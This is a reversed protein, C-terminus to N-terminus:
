KSCRSERFNPCAFHSFLQPPNYHEFRYCFAHVKAACQWHLIVCWLVGYIATLDLDTVCHMMLFWHVNAYYLFCEERILITWATESLMLLHGTFKCYSTVSNSPVQLIFLWHCVFQLNLDPTVHNQQLRLSSTNMIHYIQWSCSHECRTATTCYVNVCLYYM